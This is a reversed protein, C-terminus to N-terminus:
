LPHGRLAGAGYHRCGGAISPAVEIDVHALHPLGTGAPASKQRRQPVRIPCRADVSIADATVLMKMHDPTPEELSQLLEEEKQLLIEM